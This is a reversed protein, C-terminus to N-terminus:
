GGFLVWGLVLALSLALLAIPLRDSRDCFDEAALCELDTENM